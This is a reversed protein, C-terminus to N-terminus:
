PRGLCVGSDKAAGDGLHGLQPGVADRQVGVRVQRLAELRLPADVRRAAAAASCRMRM